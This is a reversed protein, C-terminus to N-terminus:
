REEPMDILDLLGGFHSGFTVTIRARRGCKSQQAFHV